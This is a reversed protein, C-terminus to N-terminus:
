SRMMVRKAITELLTKLRTKLRAIRKRPNRARKRKARLKDRLRRAESRRREIEIPDELLWATLGVGGHRSLHGAVPRVLTTLWHASSPPVPVAATQEVADVFRPTTEDDLGYPRLFAALFRHRREDLGPDGDLAAALQGLHVDFREATQLVGGELEVLYRFHLMSDQHIRFPPALLAFVPRGVITAEIFVTTCVGVVAASHYLADFYDAKAAHDIPNGGHIIVDPAGNKDVGQDVGQDVGLDVDRWEKVREPHPRILISATRIRPDRSSRVAEVWSKVFVPEPPEPPPSMASCVYLLILRSPDLGHSRCFAERTRSPARDFWQDYCQAGTVVIRDEPVPHMEIVERRQVANWVLIREPVLHLLSKSSLHDWSMVCHGVPIGLSQAAKQHDFQPARAYTMSTLLLVDPRHAELFAVARRSLPMARELHMLVAAVARRVPTRRLGPIADLWRVLRPARETTRLRLKTSGDYRPDLFRVYDLAHRLKQAVPFWAEEAVAPAWSWRILPSAAALREVLEAGGLAEPEDAILHVAHGRRALAVIV